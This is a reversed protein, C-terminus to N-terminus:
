ARRIVITSLDDDGGNGRAEDSLLKAALGVDNGTGNVIRGLQNLDVSKHLGDTAVVLTFRDEPFLMTETEPEAIVWPRFDRDGFARTLNLSHNGACLRYSVIVPVPFCRRVRTVESLNHLDHLQNLRSTRGNARILFLGCDGVNAWCLRDETLVGGVVCAGAYYESLKKGLSLFAARLADPTGGHGNQLEHALFAPFENRVAEAAECGGHGDCVVFALSGAKTLFVRLRDEMQDRSEGMSESTGIKWGQMEVSM